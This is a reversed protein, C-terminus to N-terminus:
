AASRFLMSYTTYWTASIPTSTPIIMRLFITILGSTSTYSLGQTLNYENTINFKSTTNFDSSSRLTAYSTNGSSLSMNQGSSDSWNTMKFQLLGTVTDTVNVTFNFEWYDTNNVIAAVKMAGVSTVNLLQKTTVNTQNNNVPDTAVNTLNSGTITSTFLGSAAGSTNVTFYLKVPSPTPTNLTVNIQSATTANSVGTTSNTGDHEIISLAVLPYSTPLALTLNSITDTGTPTFTYVFSQNIVNTDVIRPTISANAHVDQIQSASSNSFGSVITVNTGNDVQVIGIEVTGNIQVSVVTRPTATSSVNIAIILSRNTGSTINLGNPIYLTFKAMTNNTASAATSNAILVAGTSNVISVASINGTSLNGISVNIATLNSDGGYSGFTLNLMNTQNRTNIYAPAMNASSVNLNGAAFVPSVALVFLAAALIIVFRM